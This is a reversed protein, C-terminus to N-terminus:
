EYFHQVFPLLQTEGNTNDTGENDNVVWLTLKHNEEDDPDGTVALSNFMPLVPGRLDKLELLFDEVLEKELDVQDGLDAKYIRRVSADFGAQDDTELFLFTENDLAVIDRLGVTGTTANDLPYQFVSVGCTPTLDCVIVTGNPVTVVYGVDEEYAVGSIDDTGNVEISDQIVGNANLILLSTSARDALVFGPSLLDIGVLDLGTAATGNQFTIDIAQQIRPPHTDSRIRLIRPQAFFVGEVAWLQGNTELEGTLGALA